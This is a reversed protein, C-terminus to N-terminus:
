KYQRSAGSGKKGVLSYSMGVLEAVEKWSVRGVDLRLGVWGRSGVYAPMYFRKPNAAILASNEGPPVKCWMGMIGDGHHDNLFYAFVKKKVKFSAHVAMAEREAGELALCIETLRTLRDDEVM